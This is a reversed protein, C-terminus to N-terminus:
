HPETHAHKLPTSLVVGISTVPVAFLLVPALLPVTAAMVM